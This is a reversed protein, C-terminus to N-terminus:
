HQNEHKELKARLNFGQNCTGCYFPYKGTHVPLHRKLSDIGRFRKTCYECCYFKGEHMRLHDKLHRNENFGKQCKHCIHKYNGTHHQMHRNLSGKDHLIKGCPGCKFEKNDESRTKFNNKRKIKLHSTVKPISTTFKHVSDHKTNTM